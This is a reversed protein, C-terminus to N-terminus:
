MDRSAACATKERLSCYLNEFEATMRAVSYHELVRARGAQALGLLLRRDGDLRALAKALADVDKPPVFLGHVGDRMVDPIAGVRTVVPVAGAAMAELLAYPLGERHYTPFVFVDANRWLAIKDEGFLPGVFSVCDAVGLARVQERVASEEPGSGALIFRMAHGAHLLKAVAEIAERIGKEEVMRGLYVVRLPGQIEGDLPREALGRFDIANPIVVLHQMPVFRCYSALEVLALLVVADPMALVRRLLATRWHSGKFFEEPLAGGHVQYIVRRGLLKSILLFGIDRWYSKPELSTNLQVVDPRHRLVFLFFRVPGSILRWLRGSVTESTGESGVQFHLLEFKEALGSSFLQNLHTSVGSVASLSPGLHCIKM